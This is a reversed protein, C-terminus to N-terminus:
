AASWTEATAPVPTWTEPTSTVPAWQFPIEGIGSGTIVLVAAGTGRPAVFGTAAASITLTAAAAGNVGGHSGTAAATLGLTAAASGAVGRTGAATATIALTAAGTGTVDPATHTGSGSAAIGLTAAGTSNFLPPGAETAPSGNVTFDRGNGSSDLACAAVTGATMPLAMYASAKQPEFYGREIAIEGSTLVSNWVKFGSVGVDAPDFPNGGLRLWTITVNNLLTGTYTTLSGGAPWHGIEIQNAGTGTFKIYVFTWVGATLAIGLDVVTAGDYWGFNGSTRILNAVRLSTGRIDMLDEDGAGGPKVWAMWTSSTQSVSISGSARDFFEGSAANFRVAM